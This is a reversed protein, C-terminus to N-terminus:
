LVEAYQEEMLKKNRHWYELVISLEIDDMNTELMEGNTRIVAAHHPPHINVIRINGDDKRHFAYGSVIMDASQMIENFDISSDM